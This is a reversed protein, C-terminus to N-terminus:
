LGCQSVGPYLVAWAQDMDIWGVSPQAARSVNDVGLRSDVALPGCSARPRPWHCGTVVGGDSGEAPQASITVVQLCGMVCLQVNSDVDPRFRCEARAPDRHTRCTQYTTYQPTVNAVGRKMGHIGTQANRRASNALVASM